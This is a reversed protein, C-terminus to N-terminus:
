ESFIISLDHIISALDVPGTNVEPVLFRVMGDDCIQRISYLFLKKVEDNGGFYTNLNGAHAVWRGTSSKKKGWIHIGKIHTKWPDIARIAALYKEAKFKIPDINEATLLQPFDLVIGLNLNHAEITECLAVIEKAKGVLFKGGRYVTGARNEILIQTDPYIDHVKKEFVEFRAAFEEMTCYDNFPPHIEVITPPIRDRTLEIIFDAFESAWEISKWLQPVGDKNASVLEPFKNIFASDLKRKGYSYETHLSYLGIVEISDKDLHGAVEHIDATYGEPYPVSNYEILTFHDLLKIKEM